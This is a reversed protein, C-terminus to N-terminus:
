NKKLIEDDSKSKDMKVFMEYRGKDIDNQVKLSYM